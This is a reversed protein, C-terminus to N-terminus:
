TTTQLRRRDGGSRRDRGSRRDYEALSQDGSRRDQGLRRDRGSRREHSGLLRMAAASRLGLDLKIAGTTRDSLQDLIRERDESRLKHQLEYSTVVRAETGVEERILTAIAEALERSDVVSVPNWAGLYRVSGRRRWRRVIVVLDNSGLITEGDDWGRRDGGRVLLSLV